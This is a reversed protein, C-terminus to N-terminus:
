LQCVIQKLANFDSVYLDFAGDIYVVTDDPKPVRNNAFQSIRWTTPLFNSVGEAFHHAKPAAAPAAAKAQSALLTADAAAAAAATAAPASAAAGLSLDSPAAADAQPAKAAQNQPFLVLSHKALLNCM